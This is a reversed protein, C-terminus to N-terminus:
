DAYQKLEETDLEIGLPEPLSLKVGFSRKDASRYGEGPAPDSYLTVSSDDRDILLYFPIGADGYALPKEKRDRQDTDSDYSTVELVLLVGETPAWEGQGAFHAAPVLVGDPRARGKRCKEVRLGQGQYLDLDPRSQMCRRMLWMVITNHDGDPVGKAGIRGNIFELGVADDTEGAAFEAIGEFEEVSMQSAHTTREAMDTM